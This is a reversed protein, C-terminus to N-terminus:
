AEYNAEQIESLVKFLFLTITDSKEFLYNSEIEPKQLEKDTAEKIYKAEEPMINGGDKINSNEDSHSEPIKEMEEMDYSLKTSREMTMTEESNTHKIIEKEM